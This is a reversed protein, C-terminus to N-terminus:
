LPFCMVPSGTAWFLLAQSCGRACPALEENKLSHWFSYPLSMSVDGGLVASWMGHYPLRRRWPWSFWHFVVQRDQSLNPSSNPKKPFTWSYWEELLWEDRLLSHCSDVIRSSGDRSTEPVTIWHSLFVSWHDILFGEDFFVLSRQNSLLQFWLFYTSISLSITRFLKDSWWHWLTCRRRSLAKTHSLHSIIWVCSPLSFNLSIRLVIVELFQYADVARLRLELPFYESSERRQAAEFLNLFQHFTYLTFRLMKLALIM